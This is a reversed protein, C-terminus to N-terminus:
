SNSQKPKTIAVDLLAKRQKADVCTEFKIDFWEWAGPEKYKWSTSGSHGQCWFLSISKWLQRSHFYTRNEQKINTIGKVLHPIMLVGKLVGM